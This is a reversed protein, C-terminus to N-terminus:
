RERGACAVALAPSALYWAWGGWAPDHGLVLPVTAPIM